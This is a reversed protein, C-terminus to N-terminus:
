MLFPTPPTAIQPRSAVHILTWNTMSVMMPFIIRQRSIRHKDALNHFSLVNLQEQTIIMSPPLSTKTFYKSLVTNHDCISVFYSQVHAAPSPYKNDFCTASAANLPFLKFCAGLQSFNSSKPQLTTMTPRGYCFYVTEFVALIFSRLSYEPEIRLFTNIAAAINCFCVFKLSWIWEWNCLLNFLTQVFLFMLSMIGNQCCEM